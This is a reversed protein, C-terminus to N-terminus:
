KATHWDGRATPFRHWVKSPARCVGTRVHRRQVLTLRRRGYSFPPAGSDGRNSPSFPYASQALIFISSGHRCTRHTTATRTPFHLDSRFSRSSIWTVACPRTTTILPPKSLALQVRLSALFNPIRSSLMPSTLNFCTQPHLNTASSAM